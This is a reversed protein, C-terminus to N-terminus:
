INLLIFPNTMIRKLCTLARREIQWEALERSEAEHNWAKNAELIASAVRTSHKNM